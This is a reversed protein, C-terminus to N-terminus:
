AHTSRAILGRALWDDFVALVQQAFDKLTAATQSVLGLSRVDGVLSHALDTPTHALPMRSADELDHSPTLLNM